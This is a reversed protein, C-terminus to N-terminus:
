YGPAHDDDGYDGDDADFDDDYEAEEAELLDIHHQTLQTLPLDSPTLGGAQPDQAHTALAQLAQHWLTTLHLIDTTTFLAAPWTFDATLQPGDPTDHTAAIIELAHAFPMDPEGPAPVPHTHDITTWYPANNTNDTDEPNTETTFRGLYNFAITPNPHQALTKATDPNLHRLLGYGIGHDPITRLQEKIHKLANGTEPGAATIQTWTHHPPTLRVPHITTFWGITRSLDHNNDLADEYRGHGELDILLGHQTTHPRWQRAALALATLLIDNIGANYTAPVTTLLAQTEDTPLALTHTQATALTDRTPDLPPTGLTTTTHDPHTPTHTETLTNNWYPLQNTYHPQTAAQTLAHAWTRLPT